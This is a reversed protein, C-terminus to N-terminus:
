AAPAIATVSGCDCELYLAVGAAGSVLFVECDCAPCIEGTAHEYTFSQEKM